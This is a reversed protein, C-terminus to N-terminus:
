RIEPTTECRSEGVESRPSARELWVKLDGSYNGGRGSLWGQSAATYTEGAVADFSITCTVVSHFRPGEEISGLPASRDARVVVTHSGPRVYWTDGMVRRGDVEIVKSDEGHAITALMEIPVQEGPYLHTAATFCGGLLLIVSFALGVRM